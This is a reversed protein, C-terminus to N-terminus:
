PPTPPIQLPRISTSRWTLMQLCLHYNTTLLTSIEQHVAQNCWGCQRYVHRAVPITMECVSYVLCGFRTSHGAVIYDEEM